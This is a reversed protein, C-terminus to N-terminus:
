KIVDIAYSMADMFLLGQSLPPPSPGYVLGLISPPVGTQWYGGLVWSAPPNYYSDGNLDLRQAAASDYMLVSNAAIQHHTWNVFGYASDNMASSGMGAVPNTWFSSWSQAKLRVPIANHGLAAFALTLFGSCDKCDMNPSISSVADSLYYTVTPDSPDLPNDYAESWFWVGSGSYDWPSAWFMGKTCQVKVPWEYAQFCAWDCAYELLDTWPVQQKGLPAEDVLYLRVTQYGGGGYPDQLVDLGPPAGATAYIHMLYELNGYAVSDPVGDITITLYTNSLPPFSVTRSQPPTLFAISSAPRNYGAPVTLKAYCIDM